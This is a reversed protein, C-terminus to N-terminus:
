IERTQATHTSTNCEKGVRREESRTDVCSLEFEVISPQQQYTVPLLLEQGAQLVDAPQPVSIAYPGKSVVSLDRIAAGANLLRLEMRGATAPAGSYTFVPLSLQRRRQREEQLSVQTAELQKRFLEVTAVQADASRQLERRTFELEHRQLSLEESQLVISIAVAALAFASFLASIAGFMQGFNGRDSWTNFSYYTAFATLVELSVAALAVIIAVTLWRRLRPPEGSSYQTM